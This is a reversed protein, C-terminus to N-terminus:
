QGGEGTDTTEASAPNATVAPAAVAEAVTDPANQRIYVLAENARRSVGPPSDLSISLLEYASRAEEWRECEFEARIAESDFPSADTPPHLKRVTLM